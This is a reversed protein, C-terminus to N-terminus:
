YVRKLDRYMKTVSSHISYRSGHAEALLRLILNEVRPVCMRGKYNLVGNADLTTRQSKGTANKTRIEDLEGDEFQKDKIEEIFMSKAEVSALLGGSESIGFVANAKGPHYKITVDYDKLIGDM